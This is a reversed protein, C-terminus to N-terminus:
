KTVCFRNTLGAFVTFARTSLEFAKEADAVHIVFPFDHLFENRRDRIEKWRFYFNMAIKSISQELTEGALQRFLQERKPHNGYKERLERRAEEWGCRTPVLMRLLLQRLLKELMAATLLVVIQHEENTDSYELLPVFAGRAEEISSLQLRNRIAALIKAFQEQSGGLSRYLEQVERAACVAANCDFRRGIHEELARALQEQTNDQREHARAYFHAIM